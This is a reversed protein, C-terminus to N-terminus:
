KRKFWPVFVSTTRQYERYEDGRSKLSQYEAMPVGTVKLLLYLMFAPCLITLWGYPSNLAFLFYSVWIMFEFFYNPHRSYNWLGSQCTKGRNQPNAKFHSLQRDALTEGFLSVAWLLSATIELCGLVPTYNQMILFFPLSLAWLVFAQAQFFYFFNRNVHPAWEVRLQRYRSDEEHRLVRRYLYYTLRLSWLFAITAILLKRTLFGPSLALYFIALGMFGGSWVVDVIGFNDLKIAKRWTLTMGICSVVLGLIAITASNM